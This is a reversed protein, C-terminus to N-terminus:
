WLKIVKNYLATHKDDIEKDIHYHGFYWHKFDVKDEISEFWDTLIDSEKHRVMHEIMRNSACHTIIYDIKNNYEQLKNEAQKIEEATPLESKWWSKGEVRWQKDISTAGGMTFLTHGDINFLQGRELHIVSDSVKHVLGGNWEELPLERLADHNEHNGDVYLTTWSKNDFWKQIYRDGFGKDWVAACDGCILVYDNKTLTDPFSRSTLKTIDYDGHTDGTIYLSM